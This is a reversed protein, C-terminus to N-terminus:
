LKFETDNEKANPLPIQRWADKNDSQFSAIFDRLFNRWPAPTPLYHGGSHEAIRVNKLQTAFSATVAPPIIQDEHGLIFLTPTHIEQEFLRDFMSDRPHFGSVSIAFQFPKTQLPGPSDPLFDPYEIGAALICALCAGQSYGLVGDFPGYLAIQEKLYKATSDWGIYTGNNAKWWGRTQQDEPDDASSVVPNPNTESAFPKVHIPANVFVFDAVDRCTKQLASLKKKYLTANMAFGHLVLVRSKGASM